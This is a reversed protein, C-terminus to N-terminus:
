YYSLTILILIEQVTEYYHHQRKETGVVVEILGGMVVKMGVSVGSDVAIYM